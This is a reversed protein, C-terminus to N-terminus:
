RPTTAAATLERIRAPHTYVTACDGRVFGCLTIGLREAMEIALSTPASVAAVIEFGARAAKAVMEFSLRSSLIVGCGLLPRGALLCHGIVKDLANHRGLDEAAAVIKRAADFVAAAHVGGTSAFVSQRKQMGALLRAFDGGEVRLTDAVPTMGACSNALAERSGCIGCSSTMLVDRRRVRVLEPAVLQMRVIDPRDPCVALTAIDALSNIIGETYAFGVALAFQEPCAADGLLGDAAVYGATSELATTPTWMLTYVGVDEIDISLADEHAVQCDAAVPPEAGAPLRQAAVTRVGPQVHEKPLRPKRM